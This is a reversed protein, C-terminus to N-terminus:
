DPFRRKHKKLFEQLDNPDIRLRGGLEIAPLKGSRIWRRITDPKIQLRKSVDEVTLLHTDDQM